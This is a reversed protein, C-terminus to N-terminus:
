SLIFERLEVFFHRAPLPSPVEFPRVCGFFAQLWPEVEGDAPRGELGPRCLSLHFFRRTPHIDLTFCLHLGDAARYHRQPPPSVPLWPHAEAVAKMEEAVELKTAM